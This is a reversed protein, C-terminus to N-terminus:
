LHKRHKKYKIKKGPHHKQGKYKVVHIHNDVWVQPGYHYVAVRPAGISFSFSPPLISVGSWQNGNQYYYLGPGADFYVNSSPYYYYKHKGYEKAHSPQAIVSQMNFALLFLTVAFLTSLKKM